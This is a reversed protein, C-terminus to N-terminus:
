RELVFLMYDIAMIKSAATTTQMAYTVCLGASANIQTAPALATNGRESQVTEAGVQSWVRCRGKAADYYATVTNWTTTLTGIATNVANTTGNGAVFAWDSATSGYVGLGIPTSDVGSDAAARLGIFGTTSAAATVKFRSQYFWSKANSTMTCLVAATGLYSPIQAILQDNNASATVMWLGSAGAASAGLGFNTVAANTGTLLWGSLPASGSLLPDALPKDFDDWYVIYRGPSVFPSPFFRAPDNKAYGNVGNFFRTPSPM